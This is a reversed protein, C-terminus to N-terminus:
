LARYRRVCLPLAVVFLALSWLLSRLVLAGADGGESLARLAEIVVNVPQNRAFARLPGSMTAVPIWAGSLFTLPLSPLFAALQAAEAQRVALGILAFLWSVAYAFVLLLTIGVLSRALGPPHYGLAIGTAIAVVLGSGVRVLDAVTRGVLVAARSMPLSRFRDIVGAQLDEAMGASTVSGGLVVTMVLVGPLLYQVYNGIGSGAVVGGFVANLMVLFVVPQAVSLVLLQPIRAFRVLYRRTVAAMDSVAHRRARLPIPEIAARRPPAPTDMRAGDGTLRFFVDDLSPHRLGLDDLKVTADHLQRAATAVAAVGDRVGVRVHRDEVVPAGHGVGALVEVACPVDVSDAVRVEVVDDGMARKLGDTTGDAVIRGRDIVFVRQALREIEELYQSTVVITVGRRAIDDVMDWLENRSRPDLGATPEDLLVVRPEGILTAALDLRRRMGGSYTKVQRDAADVLDFRGLLEDTRAQVTARDLGYLRGVLALNERATLVEDVAASQGALGILQRVSGAARAADYGGVFAGGADPRLLTALVRLLTTKGAGNPGLLGVVEGEAVDLSVDDLARTEGFSHTLGSVHIMAM